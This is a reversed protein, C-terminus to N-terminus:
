STLPKQFAVDAERFMADLQALAKRVVESQRMAAAAHAAEGAIFGVVCHLGAGAPATPPYSTVWFEPVFCDAVRTPDQDVSASAHRAPRSWRGSTIGAHRMNAGFATAATWGTQIRARRRSSCEVMTLIIGEACRQTQHVEALVQSPEPGSSTSSCGATSACVLHHVRAACLIDPRQAQTECRHLRCRLLGAALVAGLVRAAGEHGDVDEAQRHGGARACPVSSHSRQSRRMGIPRFCRVPRTLPSASQSFLQVCCLGHSSGLHSAPWELWTDSSDTVVVRVSASMRMEVSPGRGDLPASRVQKRAPLPPSFALDGSQLATLPVAVVVRGARVTRGGSARCVTHERGASM